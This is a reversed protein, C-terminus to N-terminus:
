SKAAPSPPCFREVQRAGPNTWDGTNLKDIRDLPPPYKKELSKGIAQLEAAQAEEQEATIFDYSTFYAKGWPDGHAKAAKVAWAHFPHAKFAEIRAKLPPPLQGIYAEKLPREISHLAFALHRLWEADAEGHAGIDRVRDFSELLEPRVEAIAKRLAALKGERRFYTKLWIPMAPEALGRRDMLHDSFDELVDLAAIEKKLATDRLFARLSAQEAASLRSYAYLPVADMWRRMVPDKTDVIAIYDRLVEEIAVRYRADLMLPSDIPIAACGRQLAATNFYERSRGIESVYHVWYESHAPSLKLSDLLQMEAAFEKGQAGASTASTAFLLCCIALFSKM